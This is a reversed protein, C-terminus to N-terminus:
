LVAEVLTPLLRSTRSKLSHKFYWMVKDEIDRRLKSLCVWSDVSDAAYMELTASSRKNEGYLGESYLNTSMQIM